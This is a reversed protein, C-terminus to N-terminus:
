SAKRGAAEEEFFTAFPPKNDVSVIGAKKLWEIAELLEGDVDTDPVTDPEIDGFSVPAPAAPADNRQQAM